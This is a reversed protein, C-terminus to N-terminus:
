FLTCFNNNQAFHLINVCFESTFSLHLASGLDTLASSLNSHYRHFIADDTFILLFNTILLLKM